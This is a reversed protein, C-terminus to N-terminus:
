QNVMHEAVKPFVSYLEEALIPETKLVEFIAEQMCDLWTTKAFHDIQHPLHRARMRPHGHKESYLPPGGLFQTLFEIQKQKIEEKDNQFLAAIPSKYIKDYFLNLIEALRKEGIKDYLSMM